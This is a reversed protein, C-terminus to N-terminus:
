RWRTRYRCRGVILLEGESIVGLDGTRLWPGDPTGPSPHVLNAGFTRETLQPKEWYGMAVNDGHVWIEGVASAPKELHTEPDVIRVTSARPAGYSVVETGGSAGIGCRKAYGASLKESEFRVTEVPSGPAPTAVYVTAEAPGYLPRVVTASLNAFAFRDNFRKLTTAEISESGSVIAKVNGLDLDALDDDSTRRVALEFAFNPAASCSRDHRALLQLWRAPRQMFMTPSTLVSPLASVIPAFIGFILGVDHSFPLWSVLTTAGAAGADRNEFYDSMMQEVNAIVNSHSVVVGTPTRTAGATYQLYAAKPLPQVFPEIPRPLNLNLSDMEVVHPAAHGSAACAYKTAEGIVASTTLIVAPVSERLVASVREDHHGFRPISLPVAIFGAQLAGLFAAIYDLGSPALIAARDGVSGLLRLEDAVAHARRHIQAWSLSETSGSPDVEYDVFTFATTDPKDIALAELLAPISLEAVQM